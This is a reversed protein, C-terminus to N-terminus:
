VITKAKIREDLMSNFQELVRLSPTNVDYDVEPHWQCSIWTKGRMLEVIENCDKLGVEATGLVLVGEDWKRKDKTAEYLLAQHHYSNVYIHSLPEKQLKPLCKEIKEREKIDSGFFKKTRDGLLKVLHMPENKSAAIGQKHPAHVIDGDLIDSVLTM